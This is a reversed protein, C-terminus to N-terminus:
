LVPFESFQFNVGLGKNERSVYESPICKDLLALISSSLYWSKAM